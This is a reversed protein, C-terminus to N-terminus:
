NTLFIRGLNELSQSDGGTAALKRFTQAIHIKNFQRRRFDTM